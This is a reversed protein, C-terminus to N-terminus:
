EEGETPVDRWENDASYVDRWLQQLKGEKSFRLEATPQMVKAVAMTAFLTVANFNEQVKEDSM